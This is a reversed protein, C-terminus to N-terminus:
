GVRVAIRARPEDTLGLVPGDPDIDAEETSVVTAMSSARLRQLGLYRERLIVFTGSCAVIIAGGVVYLTPAENFVWFGIMFAWLMSAYEFPALFSAPAYRNSDTFFMQGLGGSIGIGVLLLLEFRSPMVWGFPITVLSATMVILTMFIVISSSKETATLRRIQITAGAATFANTLAFGLGILMPTTVEAHMGMYPLLMLIVGGFGILVASWRYVQVQEKLILAALLVTILPALFSIATVDAIPLRALAGFVCFTGTVSFIGRVLHASVRSTQMAGRLERRWGFFLLIPIMAFLGRFFAMEGIPVSTGLYRAQAGMFAFMLSSLLKYSVAKLINM